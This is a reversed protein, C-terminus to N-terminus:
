AIKANEAIEQMEGRSPAEYHKEIVEKSDNVHTSIQGTTWGAKRCNKICTARLAHFPHAEGEKIIGAQKLAINFINYATKSCLHQNSWEGPFVYQGGSFERWRRLIQITHTSVYATHLKNGKKKEEYTVSREEEDINDWQLRVIDARRTGLALALTLLTYDRIKHTAELLRKQQTQSLAKEGTKYTETKRKM